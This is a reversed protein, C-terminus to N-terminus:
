RPDDDDDDNTEPAGALSKILFHRPSMCTPPETFLKSGGMGDM